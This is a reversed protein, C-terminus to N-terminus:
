DGWTSHIYFQQRVGGGEGRSGPGEQAEKSIGEGGHRDLKEEWGKM